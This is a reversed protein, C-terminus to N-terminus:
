FAVGNGSGVCSASTSVRNPALFILTSFPTCVNEKDARWPSAPPGPWTEPNTFFTGLAVWSRDPDAARWSLPSLHSSLRFSFVPSASFFTLYALLPLFFSLTSTAFSSLFPPCRSSPGGAEKWCVCAPGSACSRGPAPAVSRVGRWFIPHRIEACAVSALLHPSANSARAPTATPLIGLTSV